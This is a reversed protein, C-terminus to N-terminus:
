SWWANKLWTVVLGNPTRTGCAWAEPVQSSEGLIPPQWESTNSFVPKSDLCCPTYSWNQIYSPQLLQVFFLRVFWMCLLLGYLTYDYFCDRYMTCKWTKGQLIAKQKYGNINPARGACQICEETPNVDVLDRSCGMTKSVARTPKPLDCLASIARHRHPTGGVSKPLFKGHSSKQLSIRIINGELSRDCIGGFPFLFIM